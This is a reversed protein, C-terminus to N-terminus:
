AKMAQHFGLRVNPLIRSSILSFGLHMRTNEGAWSNVWVKGLNWCAISARVVYKIEKIFDYNETKFSLYVFLTSYIRLVQLCSAMDSVYNEHKMASHFCVQIGILIWM